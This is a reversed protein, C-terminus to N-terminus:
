NQHINIKFGSSFSDTSPSSLRIFAFGYYANVKHCWGTTASQTQTSIWEFSGILAVSGGRRVVNGKMSVIVCVSSLVLISCIHMELVVVNNNVGLTQNTYRDYVVIHPQPRRLNTAAGTDEDCVWWNITTDRAYSAASSKNILLPSIIM